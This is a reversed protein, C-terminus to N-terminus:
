RVFNLKPVPGASYSDTEEGEPKPMQKAISLFASAKHREYPGVNRSELSRRRTSRAEAGERCVSYFLLHLFSCWENRSEDDGVKSKADASAVSLGNGKGRAEANATCVQLLNSRETGRLSGLLGFKTEEGQTEGNLELTQKSCRRSFLLKHILSRAVENWSIARECKIGSRQEQKV